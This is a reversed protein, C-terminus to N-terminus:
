RREALDSLVVGILGRPVEKAFELSSISGPLRAVSCRGSLVAAGAFTLVHLNSVRGVAVVGNSAGASDIWGPKRLGARLQLVDLM